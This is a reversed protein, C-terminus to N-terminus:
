KKKKNKGSDGANQIDTLTRDYAELLEKQEKTLKTPVQVIFTVYHDGRTAPNKISPVGKGRLRIRTDTQTGPSVTYIVDGDITSIRMDGGLAAKTFPLPVNSYIDMGDRQFIPSDKVRIEVLIDGRPGGNTGPEGEGSLRVAQGDNIGAPINVEITKKRSIFGEGYCKPCKDKIIKGKGRCEPCVQVSQTMGFLSQRQFVVQGRGKCQPCTEPNTGKRAGTGNCEPCTDHGNFTVEKKTGFVAEEFTITVGIRVNAGKQPENDSYSSRRGGFGGMGFLDGFIDGFNSFIDGMDSFGFGSAGAGGGNEFAAHGFQDYKRRKDADSLVAYAESAEKFKEEAEKNGPNLDPHYKKALVRYAKKIEDDSANKTVGLVEYYDRKNDAM